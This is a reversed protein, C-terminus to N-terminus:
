GDKEAKVPFLKQLTWTLLIIIGIICFIGLMGLGMIRLSQSFNVATDIPQAAANEVSAAVSQTVTQAILYSLM